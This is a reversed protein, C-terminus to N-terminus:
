NKNTLEGLSDIWEIIVMMALYMNALPILSLILHWKTCELMGLFKEEQRASRLSGPLLVLYTVAVSYMYFMIFVKLIQEM